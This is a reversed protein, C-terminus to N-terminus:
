GNKVEMQDDGRILDRVVLAARAPDQRVFNRILAARAEYTPAMEIMGLTIQGEEGTEQALAAAIEGGMKTKAAKSAESRKAVAAGTKRLLPRAVGFVVLAALALATLNRALMAVWDAQWWSETVEEVPAFSRASLAVVDGREASFGVAGKILTELAALDEKSRPRGGEPNKLAVAVTLRKVQGPQSHTVSVERGVAFSRNYNESKKMPDTVATAGAAVEPTVTGDPAAAVQAAPPADNSLAGPIGMAEAEPQAVTYAGEEARLTTAEEPFAERTAQVETFDVDAHVEATFNDAGVIPTLLSAIAQRYREEVQSQVAIRKSSAEAAGGTGESSLLRGNQDVVSVGDTSLGPVSSAVLHVIAQVQADSLSRGSALRLMVSAAPESRDRVFVSPEAVALHVRASQVVDIAEITRALDLERASRLRQDEVARSSGLPLDSILSNGDPASKPLGQSALLMKAEHYRTEPVAVAGTDPDITYDMGAAQLSQAMAARDADPLGSFLPRSPPASFAMWVIAALGLLGIMAIAPLSKAVAPQATFAKLQQVFGEFGAGGRAPRTTAVSRTPTAVIDTPSVALESM